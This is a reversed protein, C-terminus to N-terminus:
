LFHYQPSLSLNLGTFKLGSCHTGVISAKVKAVMSEYAGGTADFLKAVETALEKQAQLYEEQAEGVEGASSKVENLNTKIDKLTRIYQLGADEGPGGFIDALATGVVSASDPLENLRESVM